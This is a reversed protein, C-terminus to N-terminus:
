AAPDQLNESVGAATKLMNEAFIGYGRTPDNVFVHTVAGILKGDQIIPSGSMGQVIGGTKSLLTEDTIKVILNRTPSGDNFHVKEIQVDYYQYGEGDITTIIQADGTHIEQKMAVKVAEGSEPFSRLQGYVGTEGNQTLIGLTAGKAFSGRLEGPEGVEGRVVGSIDVPVVEGSQLPLIEGTDIDCVAHGLGGFIGSEPDYFTMTGIGASSDRVWAGLKYRGESVSKAPTVEVHFTLNGRRVVFDMTEGNSREVEAAVEENTNVTAGNISSIVDGVKIGAQDAPNVAGKATDVSSMGVVVVGDTFMKIGFPSGCPVVETEEVVSITVQKVPLLGMLKLQAQYSNGASVSTEVVGKKTKAAVEIGQSDLHLVQGQTVSFRDPLQIEYFAALALLLACPIAALATLWRIAKKM